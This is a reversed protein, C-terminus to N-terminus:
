KLMVIFNNGNKYISHYSCQKILTYDTTNETHNTTCTFNYGELLEKNWISSKSTKTPVLISMLPYNKIAIRSKRCLDLSGEFSINALAITDLLQKNSKIFSKM